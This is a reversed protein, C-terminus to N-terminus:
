QRGDMGLSAAILMTLIINWNGHVALSLFPKLHFANSLFSSGGWGRGPRSFGGVQSSRLLSPMLKPLSNFSLISSRKSASPSAFPFLGARPERGQRALHGRSRTM